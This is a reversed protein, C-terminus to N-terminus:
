ESQTAVDCVGPADDMLGIIFGLHEVFIDDVNLDDMERGTEKDNAEFILEGNDDLSIASISVDLPQPYCTDPNAAVIPCEGEDEWRYEGGHAKVAAKIEGVIYSKIFKIIPYFNLHEM